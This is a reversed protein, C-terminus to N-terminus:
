KCPGAVKQPDRSYGAFWAETGVTPPGKFSLVELGPTTASRVPEAATSQDSILFTFRHGRQLLEQGISLINLHHSLAQTDALALINAAHATTATAACLLIVVLGKWPCCFSM